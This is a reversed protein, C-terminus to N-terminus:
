RRLITVHDPRWTPDMFGCLYREPAYHAILDEVQRYTINRVAMLAIAGLLERYRPEPGCLVKVKSAHIHHAILIQEQWDTANALIVLEHDSRIAIETSMPHQNDFFGTQGPSAM